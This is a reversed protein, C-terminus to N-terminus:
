QTHRKNKRQTLKITIFATGILVALSLVISVDGTYPATDGSTRAYLPPADAAATINDTSYINDLDAAGANPGAFVSVASFSMIFLVIFLIYIITLLKKM